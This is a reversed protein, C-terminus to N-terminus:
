FLAEYNNMYLDLYNFRDVHGHNQFILKQNVIRHVNKLSGFRNMIVSPNSCGIYLHLPKLYMTPVSPFIYAYQNGIDLDYASM